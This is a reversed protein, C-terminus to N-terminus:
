ICRYAWTYLYRLYKLESYYACLRYKGNMHVHQRVQKFSKFLVKIIADSLEVEGASIASLINGTTVVGLIVSLPSSGVRM